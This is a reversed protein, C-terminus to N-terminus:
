IYFIHNTKTFQALCSCRWVISLYNCRHLVGSPHHLVGSMLRSLAGPFLWLFLYPWQSSDWHTYYHWPKRQQIDSVYSPATSHYSISWMNSQLHIKSLCSALPVITWHNYHITTINFTMMNLTTVITSISTLHMTITTHTVHDAAFTVTRLANINPQKNKSSQCNGTNQLM